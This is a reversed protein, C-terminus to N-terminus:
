NTEVVPKGDYAVGAAGPAGRPPVKWHAVKTTFEDYTMASNPIGAQGPFAITYSGYSIPIRLARDYPIREVSGDDWLVMYFGVPNMTTHQRKHTKINKHFYLDTSVLVDRTGSEKPGGIASGDPRTKSVVYPSAIDAHRRLMVSDAYRYDPNTFIAMIARRGPQNKFAEKDKRYTFARFGYATPNIYVDTSLGLTKVQGAKQRETYTPLLTYIQKLARETNEPSGPVTGYTENLSLGVAPIDKDAPVVRARKRRNTETVRNLQVYATISILGVLFTLLGLRFFRGRILQM